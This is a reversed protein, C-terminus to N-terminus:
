EYQKFLGLEDVQKRIANFEDLSMADPDDFHIFSIRQYKLDFVIAAEFDGFPKHYSLDFGDIKQEYGLNKFTGKASM